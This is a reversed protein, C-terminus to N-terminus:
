GSNLIVRLVMLILGFTILMKVKWHLGTTVPKVILTYFGTNNGVGNLTSNTVNAVTLIGGTIYTVPSLTLQLISYVTSNVPSIVGDVTSFYGDAFSLNIGAVWTPLKGSYNFFEDEHDLDFFSLTCPFESVMLSGNVLSDYKTNWPVAEFSYVGGTQLLVGTRYGESMVNTVYGSVNWVKLTYGGFTGGTQMDRGEFVQLTQNAGTVPSLQVTCYGDATLATTFTKTVNTYGTKGFTATYSRGAIVRHVHEGQIIASDNVQGAVNDTLTYAVNDILAGTVLDYARFTYNTYNYNVIAAPGYIVLYNDLDIYEGNATSTATVQMRITGNITNTNYQIGRNFEDGDVTLVGYSGVNQLRLLVTHWAPPYQSVVYDASGPAANNAVQLYGNYYVFGKLYRDNQDYFDFEYHVNWTKRVSISLSIVPNSYPDLQMSYRGTDTLLMTQGADLPVHLYGSTISGYNVSLQGMGNAFGNSYTSYALAPASLVVILAAMTFSFILFSSKLNM